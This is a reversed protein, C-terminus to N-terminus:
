RIATYLLPIEASLSYIQKRLQQNGTKSSIKM